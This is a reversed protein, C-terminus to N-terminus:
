RSRTILTKLKRINEPSGTFSVACPSELGGRPLDSSFRRSGTVECTIKGGKKIFLSCLHSIKRPLHGVVSTGEMVAIVYRDMNNGPERICHLKDGISANWVSKYVHYGRICSPM